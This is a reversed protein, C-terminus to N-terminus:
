TWRIKILPKCSSITVLLLIPAPLTGSPDCWSECVCHHNSPSAQHVNYSAFEDCDTKASNMFFIWKWLVIFKRKTRKLRLDPSFPKEIIRLNRKHRSLGLCEWLTKEEKLSVFIVFVLIWTNEDWTKRGFFSIDFSSWPSAGCLLWEFVFSMRWFMASITHNCWAVRRFIDKTDISSWMTWNRFFVKEGASNPKLRFNDIRQFRFVVEARLKIEIYCDFTSM